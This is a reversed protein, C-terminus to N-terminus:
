RAAGQSEEAAVALRYRAERRVEADPNRSAAQLIPLDAQDPPMGGLYSLAIDGARPSKRVEVILTRTAQEDRIKLLAVLADEYARGERLADVLAPVAFTDGIDGLAQAAEGHGNSTADRLLDVLSGVAPSGIAVLTRAAYARAGPKQGRLAKILQPVAPSGLRAIERVIKVDVQERGEAAQDGESVAEIITGVLDPGRLRLAIVVAQRMEDDLKGSKLLQLLAPASAEAIGGLRTAARMVIKEDWDRLADSLARVALLDHSHLRMLEEMQGNEIIIATAHRRLEADSSSVLEMAADAAPTGLGMLALRAQNRLEGNEKLTSILLPIAREGAVWAHLRPHYNLLIGARASAIVVEALLVGYAVLLAARRRPLKFTLLKRHRLLVIAAILGVPLLLCLWGPSFAALLVVALPPFAAIALAALNLALAFSFRYLLFPLILVAPSWATLRTEWSAAARELRRGDVRSFWKLLPYGAAAGILTSLMLAMTM